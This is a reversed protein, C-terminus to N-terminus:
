PTDVNLMLAMSFCQQVELIKYQNLYYRFIENM